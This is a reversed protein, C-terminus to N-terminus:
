DFSLITSNTDQRTLNEEYNNISNELELKQRLSIYKFTNKEMSWLHIIIIENYILSSFIVIDYLFIYILIFYWENNKDSIWIICKSSFQLFTLSIIFHCPTFYYLILILGVLWIFKSIIDFIFKLIFTSLGELSLDKIQKIIDLGLFSKKKYFVVFLELPIILILSFLGVFFMLYYPNTSYFEFHKKVLVNYLAYFGFVLICYLLIVVLSIIDFFKKFVHTYIDIFLFILSCFSIIFLSILQHKYIKSKLLIKSFLIYFLFGSSIGLSQALIEYLKINLDLTEAIMPIMNILSLFFISIIKKIKRQEIIDKNELYIQNIATLKNQSNEITFSLKKLKRTRYLILLYVFGALLYSISSMFFEYLPSTEKNLVYKRIQYIIPYLLLLLLKYSLIGFEVKM